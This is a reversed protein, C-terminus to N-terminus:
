SREQIYIKKTHIYAHIYTDRHYMYKNAGSYTHIYKEIYTRMCTHLQTWAHIYAHIYTSSTIDSFYQIVKDKTVKAPARFPFPTDACFRRVETMSTIKFAKKPEADEWMYMRVYMCSYIKYICVYMCVYMCLTYRVHIYKITKNTLMYTYKLSHLDLLTSTRM